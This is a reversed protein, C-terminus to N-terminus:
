ASKNLAVRLKEEKIRKEIIDARSFIRQKFKHLIDKKVGAATEKTLPGQLKSKDDLYMALEDEQDKGSAAQENTKQM